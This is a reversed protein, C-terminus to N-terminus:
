GAIHTQQHPKTAEEQPRNNITCTPLKGGSSEALMM